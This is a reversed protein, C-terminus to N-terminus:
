QFNIYKLHKQLNMFRPYNFTNEVGALDGALRFHILKTQFTKSPIDKVLAYNIAYIKTENLKSNYSLNYGNTRYMLLKESEYQQFAGCGICSIIDKSRADWQDNREGCNLCRKIRKM